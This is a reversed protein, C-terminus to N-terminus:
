PLEKLVQFDLLALGFIRFEDYHSDCLGGCPESWNNHETHAPEGSCSHPCLEVCRCDHITFTRDSVLQRKSRLHLSSQCSLPISGLLYLWCFNLAYRAVQGLHDIYPSDRFLNWSGLRRCM